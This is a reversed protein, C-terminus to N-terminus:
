LMGAQVVLEAFRQSYGAENDYWAIVKVCTGNIVQTLKSDFISSHLNDVIDISVVPETCYELIGKMSGEAAQKMAANVDDKNVPGNMECTLDVVSGDPTPVRMSLGDLKGALEPIVLGIAKAAGTSTPIISMAAARARRLDKHPADLIIQDNTYSHITNILGHKIGFSDNLVKAIPALCNTTCSANSIFRHEPKLQEGNVGLVITIDVDQASNAPVSLVVKSAGAQTHKELKERTRFIGTCEAVVDVGLEKWPLSVPDKEAYVRYNKGDVIIHDNESSVEGPYKGHVSDYKFLHALTKADTLDNLAVVEVNDMKLLARFTLRGIRGFGNIAVKINSM